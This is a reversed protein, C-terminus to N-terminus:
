NRVDKLIKTLQPRPVYSTVFGIGGVLILIVSIIFFIGSMVYGGGGNVKTNNKKSFFERVIERLVVVALLVIGAYLTYLFNKTVDEIKKKKDYFEATYVASKNEKKCM